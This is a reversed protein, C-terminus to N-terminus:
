AVNVMSAQEFGVFQLEIPLLVNWRDFIIQQVHNVLDYIDRANADNSNVIDNGVVEAGGLLLGNVGAQRILNDTHFGIDSKFMRASRRGISVTETKTGDLIIAGRFGENSVLMNPSLIYHPFNNQRFYSLVEDLEEQSNAELFYDAPGGIGLATYPGVPESLLITGRFFRQIDMLSVM